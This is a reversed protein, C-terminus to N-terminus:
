IHILSLVAHTNLDYLQRAYRVVPSRGLGLDNGAVTILVSKVLVPCHWMLNCRQLVCCPYFQYAIGIPPELFRSQRKPPYKWLEEVATPKSLGLMSHFSARFVKFFRWSRATVILMSTSVTGIALITAWLGNVLQDPASYEDCAGGEVEPPDVPNDGSCKLM